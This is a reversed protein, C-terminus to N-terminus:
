SLVYGYVNVTGSSFTGTSLEVTISTYQTTDNLFGNVSGGGGTTRVDVWGGTIVTEAALNPNALWISNGWYNTGDAIGLYWKTDNSGSENTSSGAWTVRGASYYYGTATTGMKLLVDASTSLEVNSFSVLYNNYTSSFVNSITTTGTSLTGGGTRVLAGSSPAAGWTVWSTGNYSQLGTGEVYCLQGEALTKEGTGGFGADRTTTTAFVPVGTRASNNQQAATLVEGATFTPVTTQANAGM